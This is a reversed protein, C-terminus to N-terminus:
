CMSYRDCTDQKLNHPNTVGLELAIIQFVFDNEGINQEM